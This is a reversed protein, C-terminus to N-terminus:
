PASAPSSGPNTHICWASIRTQDASRDLLHARCTTTTSPPPSHLASSQARPPRTTSLRETPSDHGSNNPSSNVASSIRYSNHTVLDPITPLQSRRAPDPPRTQPRLHVRGPREAKETEARARAKRQETAPRKEDGPTSLGDGVRRRQLIMWDSQTDVEVDIRRTGSRM